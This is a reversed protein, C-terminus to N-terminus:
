RTEQLEKFMEAKDTKWKVIDKELEEIKKADQQQRNEM